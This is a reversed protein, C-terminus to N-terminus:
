DMRGCEYWCDLGNDKLFKEIKDKTAYGPFESQGVPLCILLTYAVRKGKPKVAIALGNGLVCTGRDGNKEMHAASAATWRRQAEEIIATKAHVDAWTYAKTNSSARQFDYFGDKEEHFQITM